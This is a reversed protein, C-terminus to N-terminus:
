PELALSGASTHLKDGTDINDKLMIPIGHLRGRSGTEGREKDLAKAIEKAEPNIELLSCLLPDHRGIRELYLAVLEESTLWGEEMAAQMGPIDAEIIWKKKNINM